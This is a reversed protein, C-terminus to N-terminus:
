APPPPRTRSRPPPPGPGAALRLRGVQRAAGRDRAAADEARAAPLAPLGGGRRRDPDPPPRPRPLERGGGRGLEHRARLLRDRRPWGARGRLLTALRDRDPLR